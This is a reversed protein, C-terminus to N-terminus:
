WKPSQGHKAELRILRQELRDVRSRLDHVGSELRDMAVPTTLLKAEDTLFDAMNETSLEIAEDAWENVRRAVNGTKRAPTDGIYRSLLEEFDLDIQGLAKQFAQGTDADGKMNVQGSSLVGSGSGGMGLKAFASLTGSLTVDADRESRESVRIGDAGPMLFLTIQPVSIELCLVKGELAALNRKSDPDLDILLQSVRDLTQYIRGM